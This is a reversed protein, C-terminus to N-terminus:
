GEGGGSEDASATLVPVGPGECVPSLVVVGSGAADVPLVVGAPVPDTGPGVSGLTALTSGSLVSSYPPNCATLFHSSIL